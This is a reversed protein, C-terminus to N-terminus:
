RDGARKICGPTDPAAGRCHCCASRDFVPLPNDCRWAAAMNLRWLAWVSARHERLRALLGPPSKAPFRSAVDDGALWLSAGAARAEQVLAATM